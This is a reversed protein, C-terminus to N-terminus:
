VYFVNILHSTNQAIIDFNSFLLGIIVASFIIIPELKEILEM